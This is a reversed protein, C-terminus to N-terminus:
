GGSCGRFRELEPEGLADVTGAAVRPGGSASPQGPEPGATHLPLGFCGRDGAAATPWRTSPDRSRHASRLWRVTPPIVSPWCIFPQAAVGGSDGVDIVM